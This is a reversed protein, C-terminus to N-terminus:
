ESKLTNSREPMEYVIGPQALDDQTPAEAPQSKEDPFEQSLPSLRRINEASPRPLLLKGFDSPNEYRKEWQKDGESEPSSLDPTSGALESPTDSKFISKLSRTNRYMPDLNDKLSFKRLAQPPNRRRRQWRLLFFALTALLMVAVIGCVIGAIMPGINTTQPNPRGTSTSNSVIATSTIVAEEGNQELVSTVVVVSTPSLTGATQASSITSTVGVTSTPDSTGATQSSSAASTTQVTSSTAMASSPSGSMMTM